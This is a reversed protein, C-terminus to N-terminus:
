DIENYKREGCSCFDDDTVQSLIAKPHQCLHNGYLKGRHRCEKCRVVEVADTEAIFDIGRLVAELSVAFGLEDTFMGAYSSLHDKIAKASILKDEAAM